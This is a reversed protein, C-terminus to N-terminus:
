ILGNLKLYAKYYRSIEEAIDQVEAIVQDIREQTIVKPIINKTFDLKLEEGKFANGSRGILIVSVDDPLKGYKQQLAASYIETQIYDESEYDATRKDVEGTKYDGLKKVYGDEPATNTDIYGLIYCGDIQLRIETEFEDYRPLTKLFEQEKPEFASYDNNEFAQGVKHGFEGYKKLGENDDSEGLFYKRIYERKSKKWASMQSYSLYYKGEKDQKPLILNNDM